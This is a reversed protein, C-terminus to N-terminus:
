RTHLKDSNQHKGYAANIYSKSRTSHRAYALAKYVAFTSSKIVTNGVSTKSVAGDVVNTHFWKAESQTAMLADRHDFLVLIVNQQGENRCSTM